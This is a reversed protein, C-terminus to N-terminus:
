PISRNITESVFDFLVGFGTLVVFISVIIALITLSRDRQLDLVEINKQDVKHRAVMFVVCLLLLNPWFRLGSQDSFRIGYYHLNVNLAIYGILTVTSLFIYTRRGRVKLRSVESSTGRKKILYISENKDVYIM